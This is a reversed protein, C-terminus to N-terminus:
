VVCLVRVKDALIRMNELESPTLHLNLDKNKLVGIFEETDLAGSDDTDAAAFIAKCTKGFVIDCHWM